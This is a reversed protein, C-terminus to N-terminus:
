GGFRWIGQIAFSRPREPVGFYSNSNTLAVDNRWVYSTQDTLNKGVLAVTWTGTISSLALRANVFTTADHETNPDLDLASFFKDRYNVDVNFLMELADGLPQFYEASLAASWKPAYVLTEGDLDQGGTQGPEQINNGNEDLCGPNNAPDASQPVTCTAGQFDSYKADLYAVAGRFTLKRTVAWRSDIEVGQSYAEGANGVRFTDGILSSTQLDKYDMRFVAINLDAVGGFNMKAGIEYATVTEPEYELVSADNGPITGGDPEGTFVNGTRIVPGPGTYAEDYGGGKFGTSVKAYTMAFDSVDWQLDWAWTWRRETRELDNFTHSRLDEILANQNLPNAFVIVDTGTGFRSGLGPALIQKDLKKTEENYRLGLSTRMTNTFNWTLHGFISWSNADQDFKSPISGQTGVLTPVSLPGSRAFDLATNTKSIDLQSQQYYGGVLWDFLAGGPSVLRLEQSYQTYDEEQLRELSATVAMDSNTTRTTDYHSYASISTLTAFDVDWNLTLAFVDTRTDNTDAVNFAAEDRESVIPFVDEGWRNRPQDSQYVVIPSNKTSFDGYEYKALIELTETPEWLLQGRGYWDDNQPGKEDLFENDWWGDMGQYRLAVRGSLSQTLPGSVVGTYLQEGDTPSYLLDVYGELERTPRATTVSVAGAITNKGFLIGQPGKLVEIRALDMTMPVAALRGRGSYVGDIYLGVSQEFGANTGSGIGRIFLNPTAQGQNIDVNPIYQTVDTLDTLGMDNMKEGSLATVAIPVDQLGQERIQATVVVEELMRQEAVDSQAVAQLPLTTSSAMAVAVALRSRTFQKM